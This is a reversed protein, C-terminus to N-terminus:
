RSGVYRTASMLSSHLAQASRSNVANGCNGTAAPFAREIRREQRAVPSTPSSCHHHSTPLPTGCFQTRVGVLRMRRAPAAVLVRQQYGRQARSRPASERLARAARGHGETDAIRGSLRINAEAMQRGPNYIALVGESATVILANSSCSFVENGNVRVQAVSDAIFDPRDAVLMVLGDPALGSVDVMGLVTLTGIDM